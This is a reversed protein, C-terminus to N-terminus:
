LQMFQRKEIDPLQKLYLAHKLFGRHGMIICYTFLDKKYFGHDQLTNRRPRVVRKVLHMRRLRWRTKSGGIKKKKKKKM